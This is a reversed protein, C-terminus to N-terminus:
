AAAPLRTSFMEDLKRMGFKVVTPDGFVGNLLKLMSKSLRRDLTARNKLYQLKDLDIVWIKGGHDIVFNRPNADHLCVGLQRQLRWIDIVQLVYRRLLRQNTMGHALELLTTGEKFDYIYISNGRLPGFRQEVYAIPNPTPYGNQLLFWTDRWCRAARSPLFLQKIGHRFSREVHRKAVVKEDDMQVLVTTRVCKKDILRYGSEILQDPDNLLREILRPSAMRDYVVGCTWSKSQLFQDM